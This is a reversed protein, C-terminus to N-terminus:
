AGKSLLLLLSLCWISTSQSAMWAPSRLYRIYNTFTAFFRHMEARPSDSIILGDGKWGIPIEETYIPRSEVHWNAQRAYRGIARIAVPTNWGLLVLVTPKKLNRLTRM